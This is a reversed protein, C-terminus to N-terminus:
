RKLSALQRLFGSVPGVSEILKSASGQVGSMGGLSGWTQKVKDRNRWLALGGGVLAGLVIIMQVFRLLAYM